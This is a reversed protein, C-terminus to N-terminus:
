PHGQITPQSNVPASAPAPARGNVVMALLAAFVSVLALGAGGYVLRQVPAFEDRKVYRTDLNATREDIRAVMTLVSAMEASLAQRDGTQTADNDGM